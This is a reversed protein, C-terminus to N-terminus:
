LLITRFNEKLKTCIFQKELNKSISLYEIIDNMFSINYTKWIKELEM